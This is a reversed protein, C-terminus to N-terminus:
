EEGIPPSYSAFWDAVYQKWDETQARAMCQELTAEIYIPTAGLLKCLRERDSALPYGGIIYANRWKGTRTRIQDLLLDRVGFVNAKLRSPKHYRDRNCVCEWIRDIDVILDDDNAVENVYTTKGACPAGYVLYVYQRFYVPHGKQFGQWRQHIANHCKHHVLAINDPNLSISYDNVNDETLPEKHHAICDYARVIPKGCHECLVLGDANEREQILRKRLKVWEKSQYFNGLTM